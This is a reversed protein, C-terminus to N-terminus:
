HHSEYARSFAGPEDFSGVEKALVRMAADLRRKVTALSLDVVEAIEELKLGELHRLEVMMQDDLSLKQLAEVLRNRWDLRTALGPGFSAVGHELSNFAVNNVRREEYYKLLQNRAIGWLYQREKGPQPEGELYALLTKQLADQVDEAPIKTRFFRTLKPSERRILTEVREDQLSRTREKLMIDM